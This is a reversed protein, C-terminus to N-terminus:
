QGPKCGSLGAHSLMKFPDIDKNNNNNIYDAISRTVKIVKEEQWKDQCYFIAEFDSLGHGAYIRVTINNDKGMFLRGVISSRDVFLTGGFTIMEASVFHVAIVLLLPVATCFATLGRKAM